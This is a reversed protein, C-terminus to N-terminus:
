QKLILVHKQSPSYLIKVKKNEYPRFAKQGLLVNKYSPKASTIKMWEGEYRFEVTLRAESDIVYRKEGEANTRYAKAELEVADLLAVSISKRMKRLVVFGWCMVVSGGLAFFALFLFPFEPNRLFLEFIGPLLIVGCIMGVFVIWDIAKSYVKGYWFCAAIKTKEKVESQDM